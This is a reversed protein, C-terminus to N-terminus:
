KLDNIDVGNITVDIRGQHDVVSREIFMGRHKGLLELAKNVGAPNWEYIPQGDVYIANGDKDVKPAGILAKDAVTRLNDLIWQKTIGIEDALNAEYEDVANRIEPKRLNEWGSAHATHPSYGARIAAQTANHDVVYERVFAQQKDTLTARTM